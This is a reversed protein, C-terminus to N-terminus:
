VYLQIPGMAAHIAADIAGADRSIKRVPAGFALERCHSLRIKIVCSSGEKEFDSVLLSVSTAVDVSPNCGAHRQM